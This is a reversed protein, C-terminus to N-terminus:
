VCAFWLMEISSLVGCIMDFLPLSLNSAFMGNNRGVTLLKFPDCSTGTSTMTRVSIVYKEQSCILYVCIYCLEGPLLDFVCLYLM